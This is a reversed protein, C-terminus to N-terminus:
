NLATVDRTSKEELISNTHCDLYKLSPGDDGEIRCQCLSIGNSHLIAAHQVGPHEVLHLSIQRCVSELNIVAKGVGHDRWSEDLSVAMNLAFTGHRAIRPHARIRATADIAGILISTRCNTSDNLSQMHSVTFHFIRVFRQNSHAKILRHHIAFCDCQLHKIRNRIGPGNPHHLAVAVNSVGVRRHKRTSTHVSASLFFTHCAIRIAFWGSFNALKSQGQKKALVHIEIRTPFRSDPVRTMQRPLNAARHDSIKCVDGRQLADICVARDHIVFQERCAYPVGRVDRKQGQAVIGLGRQCQELSELLVVGVFERHPRQLEDCIAGNM